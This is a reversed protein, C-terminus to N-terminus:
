MSELKGVIMEAYRKNGKENPHTGDPSTFYYEKTLNNILSNDYGNLYPVHYEECVEIVKDRYDLLTHGNYEKTDSTIGEENEWWRWIPTCVLLKIHPFNTLLKEISYRLAGAYADINKDGKGVDLVKGATYDNTGYAFTVYDVKNFDITKLLEVTEKFYSPCTTDEANAGIEQSSFDKSIIADVLQYMSFADWYGTHKSMRCGGFGCNYVTAGTISSIQGSISNAGRTNGFISDGFNVVVKDKLKSASSPPVLSQWISVTYPDKRTDIIRLHIDSPNNIPMARQIIWRNNYVEVELTGSTTRLPNNLPNNIFIYSGRKIVNNLDGGDVTNELPFLDNETKLAEWKSSSLDGQKDIFRVYKTGPKQYFYCEQRIWRYNSSYCYVDLEVVKGKLELPGNQWNSKSMYHGEDLITDFDANDSLDGANNSSVSRWETAVGSSSIQRSYRIQTHSFKYATQVYFTSYNEIELYYSSTGFQTPSNLPKGICLYIGARTITDLNDSAGLNKVYNFNETLKLNNIANDALKINTISKDAPVANIPTDGTIQSLLSEALYTQDIKGLNKDIQNISISSTNKDMKQSLQANTEDIRDNVKKLASQNLLTDFTGDNVWGDFINEVELHLGEGLLYQINENQTKVIEQVDTEFRWVEDVLENVKNAIKVVLQAITYQCMDEVSILGMRIALEQINKEKM